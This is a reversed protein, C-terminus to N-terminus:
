AATAGKGARVALRRRFGRLAENTRPSQLLCVAVVVAAKFVM